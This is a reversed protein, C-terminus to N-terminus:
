GLKPTWKRGAKVLANALELLKRMVATLAVKKPKGRKCLDEYKANMDPNFRVAVLAITHSDTRKTASFPQALIKQGTKQDEVAQRKRLKAVTKPNIGLERSLEAIAAQSRQIAKVAHTTTASVHRIQEKWEL